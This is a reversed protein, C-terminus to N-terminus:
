DHNMTKIWVPAGYTVLPLIAGKYIIDMPEHKIGVGNKGSKILQPNTKRVM